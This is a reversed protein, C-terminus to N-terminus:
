APLAPRAIPALFPPAPLVFDVFLSPSFSFPPSLSVISLGWSLSVCYEFWLLSVNSLGWSLSVNSLGWSVCCYEFGLLSVISLGGQM